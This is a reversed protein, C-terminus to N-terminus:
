HRSSVCRFGLNGARSGPVYSYRCACRLNQPLSNWSGGRAARYKPRGIIGLQGNKDNQPDCSESTKEYFMSKKKFSYDGWDCCWEWVNGAMDLLLSDQGENWVSNSKPFIGVSTSHDIKLGHFNARLTDPQENGWPYKQYEQGSERAAREWQAETPLSLTAWACFAMAEFWSVGTIPRNHFQLQKDWQDPMKWHGMAGAKWFEAKNYGDDDVFRSFQSVTIPYKGIWFNSLTVLHVPSEWPHAEKDYNNQNPDRSQAGMLFSGAPIEVFMKKRAIPDRLDDCIRPDGAQGLADGAACRILIDISGAKQPDFIGMVDDRLTLYREDQVSFNYTALDAVMSGMLGFCRAQVALRKGEIASKTAHEAKDLMASFFANVKGIGQKYMVGVLLLLTERWDSNHVTKEPNKFIAEDQEKESMGSLERAALYEQFTLHWFEVTTGRSVIIGSDLEEDEIFRRANELKDRETNGPMLPLVTNYALAKDISKLRGESFSQMVYALRQHARRSLDENLIRGPKHQRSRLLWTIISEYLEARQDPLRRDNWYLVALATLMVPNIAMRRIEAKATVARVLEESYEGAKREDGQYLAGSWRSLFFRIGKEELPAITCHMFSDLVARGEYGGPRSSVIVTCTDFARITHDIIASIRERSIRGPAEDLGDLLLIAKGTICQERFFNPSLDWNEARSKSTLFHILWEPANDSTPTDACKREDCKNIHSALESIHIFIPLPSIDLGLKERAAEPKEGLLARCLIATVHRLFTSKGSGPNGIIVTHKSKVVDDLNVKRRDIELGAQNKDDKEIEGGVTYLPTYLEEIDFRHAKNGSVQLGRIDVSGCEKNLWELYRRPDNTGNTKEPEQGSVQNKFAIWRTLAPAIEITQPDLKFFGVGKHEKLEDRWKKIEQDKDLEDFKRPWPADEDLIYVLIDIKAKKAAEIELQTFSKTEDKPVHGRRFAVLLICLDCGDVREQSFEKPEQTDATWDEMPDVFFGSKRLAKIVHARHDKLDLYTSSVFAKHNMVFYGKFQM